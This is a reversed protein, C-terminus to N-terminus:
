EKKLIYDYSEKDTKIRLLRNEKTKLIIYYGLVDKGLSHISSNELLKSIEEKKM